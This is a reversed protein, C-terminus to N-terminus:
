GFSGRFIMETYEFPSAPLLSIRMPEKLTLRKRNQHDSVLRFIVFIGSKMTFDPMKTTRINM